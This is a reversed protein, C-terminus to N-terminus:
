FNLVGDLRLVHPVVNDAFITLRDVDAFEAVGALQLDAAALQARKYLPVARGEYTSVDEFGASTALSEVLAVASGQADDVPACWSGAYRRELTAGLQRLATTWLGVLEHNADQGFTAAVDDRGIAALEEASWPGHVAFRQRLALAVTAYGSRGPRKRLQPFWGSGFNIADLTLTFAARQERSGEILHLEPDLTPVTRRAALERAYGDIAHHAVRVHRSRQAVWACASRIEDVVAM